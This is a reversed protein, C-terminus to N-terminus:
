MAKTFVIEHQTQQPNQCNGGQALFSFNLKLVEMRLKYLNRFDSVISDINNKNCQVCLNQNNIDPIHYCCELLEDYLPEVSDYDVNSLLAALQKIGSLNDSEQNDDKAIKKKIGKLESAIESLSGKGLFLFLVRNLWREQKIASMQQIKFYIEIPENNYNLDQLCIIKEVRM